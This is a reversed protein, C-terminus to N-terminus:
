EKSLRLSAPVGGQKVWSGCTQVAVDGPRPLRQSAPSSATLAPLPAARPLIMLLTSMSLTMTSSPQLMWFETTQASACRFTRQQARAGRVGSAHMCETAAHHAAGARV